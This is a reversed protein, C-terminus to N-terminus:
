TSVLEMTEISQHQKQLSSMFQISKYVDEVAYFIFTNSDAQDMAYTIAELEDSIVAVTRYLCANIGQLLLNTIQQNTRTRSDADHRIIIEDFLQAALYGIAIIDEDRRDGAIGIIGICKDYSLTSLYHQLEKFAGLNHAYDIMVKFNPFTFLNMRGPLINPHPYLQHLFHKLSDRPIESIVGVLIVPLINLVMCTATGHYTLPITNIPIIKECVHKWEIIVDGKEIYVALGGQECHQQIRQNKTKGFLAVKCDLKEKIAFALDDEANLIAFGNKNTSHALVSKVRALEDMTNIDDLGLHDGTINTIISIDCADFGLGSKLIGGRACELVAYTVSSDNLIVQASLPGSCDGKHILQENVYIGETTTYGVCNGAQQLLKAVLTVVTTKGNTGTVGVIPIRGTSKNPFMMDMVPHAVNRSIGKSPSLHMRLGPGANVELIAGSSEQLPLNINSSIIDIGCIDLGVIRAIREALVRNDPHIDDTMDTATGGASLYAINKLFLVSGAPLISNQRLGQELLINHTPIDLTVKTLFNDHKNGRGPDENLLKILQSITQEGDGIIHAPTRKSVAVVKYNVVLIRYDDGPIYREVIVEQSVQKALHFGMYLQEMNKINITIGRGHNGQQPKTVLPYGLKRATEQLEEISNSVYGQPVPIFNAALINKTLEKNAVIDVGIASTQSSMSSWIKKQKCGYGLTVLSDSVRHVPINRTRAEDVLSKTSPGFKENAAIAELAAIDEELNPYVLGQALTTVLAVAAKAAYFGAEEFEYSFIVQYVGEVSTGYTRGFGCPMGALWQLELAVHEIVHGLWTGEEMRLFLGGKIGPSCRHDYLSPILAKLSAVFGPLKNTPFAEYQELDIKIVILKKRSNSWYNPGKLCTTKLVKM